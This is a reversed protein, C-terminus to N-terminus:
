SCLENLHRDILTRQGNKTQIIYGPMQADRDTDLCIKGTVGEM